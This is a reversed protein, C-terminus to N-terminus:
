RRKCRDAKSREYITVSICGGGGGSHKKGRSIPLNKNIAM